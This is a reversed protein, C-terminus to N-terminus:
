CSSQSLLVKKMFEIATNNKVQSGTFKYVKWGLLVANNLKENDNAMGIGRGHRGQVWEGGDIEIAIKLDIWAFDFRWKREHHFKYQQVPIPLSAWKIHSLFLLELESQKM